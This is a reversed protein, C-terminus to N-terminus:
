IVKFEWDIGADQVDKGRVIGTEKANRLNERESDAVRTPRKGGDKGGKNQSTTV